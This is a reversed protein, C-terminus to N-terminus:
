RDGGMTPTPELSAEALGAEIIQHDARLRLDAQRDRFLAALAELVATFAGQGTEYARLASEYALRAQPLLGQAYLVAGEELARARLLREETRLRLVLRTSAFREEAGSVRAQAEAVGAEVKGRWLPLRLGFGAQWMGPLGGRNLYGAQVSWDVQGAREALRLGQGDRERAIRAGKLEPSVSEAQALM